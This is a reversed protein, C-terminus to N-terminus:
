NCTPIPSVKPNTQTPPLGTLWAPPDAVSVMPYRVWVLAHHVLSAASRVIGALM